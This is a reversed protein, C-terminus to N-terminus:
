VQLLPPQTTDVPILEPPIAQLQELLRDPDTARLQRYGVHLQAALSAEARCLKEMKRRATDKGTHVHQFTM